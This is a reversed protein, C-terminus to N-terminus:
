REYPRLVRLAGPDEREARADLVLQAITAADLLGLNVGQGALPHVVHAADGILACRQTVYRHAGIRKLPFTSRDGVLRTTGLALDSARNLESEFEAASLASLRTALSNDASWVISSTGDALPLFALTGDRMFRQWATKEHSRETAVTAVIATQNFDSETATLGVAERVASRAGDAGIVLKASLPGASTNVAVADADVRLDRFDAALLHGGAATFEDLLAAQLLRNEVIYGLNPEGTEAADFVLAGAPSTTEHWIRMREYAEIRPGRISSWAGASDLIRESARSIAVVRSELPSHAAPLQPRKPELLGVRLAALTNSSGRVLLAAACAGVPGGGVILVDFTDARVAGPRPVDAEGTM